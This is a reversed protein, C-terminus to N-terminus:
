RRVEEGSQADTVSASTADRDAWTGQYFDLPKIEPGNPNLDAWGYWLFFGPTDFLHAGCYLLHKIGHWVFAIPLTITQMVVGGGLAERADDATTVADTAAGYWIIGPSLGVITVDKGVRRLADCSALSLALVAFTSLVAKRLNV